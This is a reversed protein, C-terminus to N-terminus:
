SLSFTSARYLISFRLFSLVGYILLRHNCLTLNSAGGALFLPWGAGRWRFARSGQGHCLATQRVDLRKGPSEKVPRRIQKKEASM